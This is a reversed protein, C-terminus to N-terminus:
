GTALGPLFLAIQPNLFIAATILIQLVIFPTVGVFVEEVSVDGTVGAVVYVNLGVPPTILGLEIMTVVLVGFWIGDVGLQNVIPWAVPVTLLLISMGDLVMGLPILVLLFCLVVVEPGVPLSLAWQSLTSPVRAYALLFTFIASGILLAFIMASTEATEKMATRLTRGLPQGDAWCTYVAILLAAFAGMAAAETSTLIGAYIGGVVVAFLLAAQVMGSLPGHVRRADADGARPAPRAAAGGAAARRATRQAHFVAYCAFVLASFLGPVIGALLLSTIPLGTLIGYIVLPISPPILIAVMASAAVLGAAFRARYGHARMEAISVKGLTAADAVSSGSIGGFVTCALVTTVGLGGPMWGVLRNASAFVRAAIGANAVIAGLLIFMPLILLDYKAVANYPAASLTSVAVRPGALVAIGASGAIALAFAIPVEILILALFLLVAGLTILEPSM